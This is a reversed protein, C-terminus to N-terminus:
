HVGHTCAQTRDTFVKTHTQTHTTLSCRQTTHTHTHTTLSCRHTTHIHTHDTLMKTHTHTHEFHKTVWKSISQEVPPLNPALAGGEDETHSM